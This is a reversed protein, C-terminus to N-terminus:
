STSTNEHHRYNSQTAFEPRPTAVPRLIVQLTPRNRSVTISTLQRSGRRLRRSCSGAVVLFLLYKM